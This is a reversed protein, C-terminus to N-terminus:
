CISRRLRARERMSEDTDHIPAVGVEHRCPRYQCQCVSVSDRVTLPLFSFFCFLFFLGCDGANCARIRQQADYITTAAPTTESNNHKKKANNISYQAPNTTNTLTHTIVPAPTALPMKERSYEFVMWTDTCVFSDFIGLSM